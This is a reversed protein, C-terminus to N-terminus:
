EGGLFQFVQVRSNYSDAVYIRDKDITIGAPMLFKGPGNGEGGFALLFEGEASFIQVRDITAGAVYINGQSDAAVGKPQSFQGSSDGHDGFVSRKKGDLSFIKIQFNMNDNILLEDSSISLHSPYNFEGGGTGRQGFGFLRNGDADFVVVRHALTEAVYLRNAAHDYALGTPRQLNSISKILVGKHDFLFLKGMASDAVYVRSESLAVGVPSVLPEDGTGLIAMHKRRAVDFLHVAHGGPDAVLIKQEHVSVAYPRIMGAKEEGALIDLFRRGLSPKIGLDMPEHFSYLYQIRATAPPPPWFIDVSAKEPVAPNSSSACGAMLASALILIRVNM